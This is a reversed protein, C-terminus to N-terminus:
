LQNQKRSNHSYAHTTNFSIFSFLIFLFHVVRRSTNWAIAQIICPRHLMDVHPLKHASHYQWYITKNWLQDAKDFPIWCAHTRYSKIIFTSIKRVTLNVFFAGVLCFIPWVVYLTICVEEILSLSFFLVLKTTISM